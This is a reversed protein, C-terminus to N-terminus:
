YYSEFPNERNMDGEDDADAPTKSHLVDEEGDEKDGAHSEIARAPLASKGAPMM